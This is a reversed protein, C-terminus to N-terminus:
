RGHGLRSSFMSVNELPNRRFSWVETGHDPIVTDRLSPLADVVVDIDVLVRIVMASVSSAIQNHQCMSGTTVDRWVPTCSCWAARAKCAILLVAPNQLDVPLHIHQPDWASGNGM